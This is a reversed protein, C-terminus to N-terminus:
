YTPRCASPLLRLLQNRRIMWWGNVKNATIEGSRILKRLLTVPKGTLWATQAPLLSFRHPIGTLREERRVRAEHRRLNRIVQAFLANVPLEAPHAPITDPM